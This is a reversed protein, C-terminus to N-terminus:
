RTAAVSNRLRDRYSDAGSDIGDVTEENLYRLYVDELSPEITSFSLIEAGAAELSQLISYRSQQPVSATLGEISCSAHRAGAAIAISCFLAHPNRLRIVMAAHANLDDFLTGLPELARLRGRILIGVRDALQEADSLLHSSFLITKGCRKLNALFGRFDASAQPDLSATPEDLLLIPADAMAAVAIGLRQRMGGSLESAKRDAVSQLACQEIATSIRSPPLKRLRRFYDLVERATLYEPFGVHQPLYSTAIRADGPTQSIDKGDIAIEGASPLVLGALCKLATTKGSGNPGLLALTEGRRLDFSVRDLALLAGFRKTLNRVQIM